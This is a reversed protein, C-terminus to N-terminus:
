FKSLTDQRPFARTQPPTFDDRPSPYFRDVLTRSKDEDSSRVVAVGNTDKQSSPPLRAGQGTPPPKDTFSHMDWISSNTANEIWTERHAKKQTEIKSRCTNRANKYMTHVPSTPDDRKKLAKWALKQKQNRLCTLEETWWRKPKPSTQILPAHLEQARELADHPNKLLSDAQQTSSLKGPIPITSLKAKSTSGFEDWNAKRYNRRTPRAAKKVSTDLITIVPIHDTRIPRTNPLTVCKVLSDLLSDSVFVDDPGTWDKSSTSQLVPFNKPPTQTLYRTAIIDIIRWAADLNGKTFTHHNRNEEWLPHHRNFDGALIIGKDNTIPESVNRINLTDEITALAPSHTCDICANYLDIRAKETAKEAAVVDGSDIKIQSRTNSPISKNTLTITRTDKPKVFHTSPFVTTWDPLARATHFPRHM